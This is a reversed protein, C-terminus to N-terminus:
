DSRSRYAYAYAYAYGQGRGEVADVANLLVGHVPVGAQQLRHRAAEVEAMPTIAFRVALLVTAPYRGIIAADTVALIPPCDIIVRDYRASVEDLLSEFRPHLLLESPNPPITGTTLLDLGEIQSAQIAQDLTSQGAIVDSLGKDRGRGFYENIHGRRMDADILLVREGSQVFVAALNTSLFSKGIGPAPGTILLRNSQSDLAAFHLTTRLSRLSEVAQDQEDKYALLYHQNSKRDRQRGLTGQLPSLPVTAFVSLGTKAEIDAPSKVGARLLQRLLVAAIGLFAGLLLGVALIMPKAPEIPELPREAYDVVRVNGVAGGKVVKLQQMNNLMATYTEQSVQMDRTLRLVEQQTQPLASVQGNYRKRERDLLAIQADLAQVSPHEPTFRALQEKRRQQLLLLDTESKVSGQLLLEGEKNVDVTDHRARYENFRNEALTLDQKVQPVAKELYALTQEAEASNRDVNQRVYNNAITNLIRVILDRDPGSLGLLLIGSDKGKETASLSEKLAMLAKVRSMKTVTFTVGPAARLDRVFCRVQDEGEGHRFPVGVRGRGLAEGEPGILEFQDRGLSRLTMSQDRWAEPVELLTIELVEGGWAYGLWGSSPETAGAYRAWADGIMPFRDPEIVTELALATIAQGLVLRSRLLEIETTAKSESNFLADLDKAASALASGKSDEVQIVADVKYIPTALVCYALACAFVGATVAAILGRGASLTGLLARLDIDDDAAAPTAISNTM